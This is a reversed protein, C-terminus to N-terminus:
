GEKTGLSQRDMNSLQPNRVVVTGEEVGSEIVAEYANMTKIKVARKEMSGNRQVMVSTKGDPDVIAERPLVLVNELRQVQVDAAATLDPFLKSNSGKIAVFGTFYRIQKSSSSMGVAGTRDFVAPLVLDPYADLRVEARQGSQLSKLDVQNIRAHLQMASPNVVRMIGAGPRVEDGEQLDVYRSVKYVNSLVALGALPSKISMKEINAHAYDLAKKARDRQIEIIRLDAAEAQRKLPITDKLLKLRAEAEALNQKNIEADTAPILNNKRMDAIASQVDFEAGKIDTDDHALAVAQDAQKRKIQQLLDDYEAQRDLVNKMMNQRDFEALIDGKHVYTGSKVLKTLVMTMATQGALRPAIVTYSQVAEVVGHLQVTRIFDKREVRVTEMTSIGKKSVSAPPSPTQACGNLLLVAAALTFLVLLPWRSKVGGRAGSYTRSPM